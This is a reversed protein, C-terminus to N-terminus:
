YIYIDMFSYKTEGLERLLLVPILELHPYVDEIVM